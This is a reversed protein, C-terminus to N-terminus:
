AATTNWFLRLPHIAYISCLKWFVGTEHFNFIKKHTSGKRLLKRSNKLFNLLQQRTLVTEEACRRAVPWCDARLLRTSKPLTPIFWNLVNFHLRMKDSVRFRPTGTGQQEM